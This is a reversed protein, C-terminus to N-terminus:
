IGGALHQSRSKVFDSLGDDQINLTLIETYLDLAKSSDHLKDYLIALKLHYYVNKPKLEIAKKFDIIALDYKGQYVYVEGRNSYLTSNSDIIELGKTYTKIAKTYKKTDRYVEGLNNYANATLATLKEVSVAKKYNKEAKKPNELHTYIHGIEWYLDAKKPNAKAKENLDNLSTVLDEEMATKNKYTYLPCVTPDSSYRASIQRLFYPNKETLQYFADLMKEKDDMYFYTLAKNYLFIPNEKYLSQAKEFDALALDYKKQQRYVIGRNNYASPDEFNDKDITKSFNELAKETDNDLLANIGENFYIDEDLTEANVPLAVFFLSFIIILIKKM